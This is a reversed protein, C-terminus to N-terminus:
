DELGTYAWYGDDWDSGWGYWVSACADSCCEQGSENPIFEQGCELCEITLNDINTRNEDEIM